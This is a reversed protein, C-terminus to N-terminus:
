LWGGWAPGVGETIDLCFVAYVAHVFCWFLCFCVRREVGQLHIESVGCFAAIKDAEKFMAAMPHGYEDNCNFSSYSLQEPWAQRDVSSSSQAKFESRTTIEAFKFVEIEVYDSLAAEAPMFTRELQPDITIM